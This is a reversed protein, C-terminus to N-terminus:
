ADYGLACDEAIFGAARVILRVEWVAVVFLEELGGLGSEVGFGALRMKFVFFDVRLVDLRAWAFVLATCCAVLEMEPKDDQACRLIQKQFRWLRATIGAQGLPGPRHVSLSSLPQLGSKDRIGVRDCSGILHAINIVFRLGAVTPSIRTSSNREGM